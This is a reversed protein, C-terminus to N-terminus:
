FASPALLFTGTATRAREALAALDALAGPGRELLARLDGGIGPVLATANVMGEATRIGLIPQGEVTLSSIRM